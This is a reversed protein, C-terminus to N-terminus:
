LVDEGFSKLDYWKEIGAIASLLGCISGFVLLTANCGCLVGSTTEIGVGGMVGLVGFMCTAVVMYVVDEVCEALTAKTKFLEQWVRVMGRGVRM